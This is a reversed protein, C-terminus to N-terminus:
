DLYIGSGIIVRRGELVSEMVFVAKREIRNTVPNRIRLYLFGGDFDNILRRAADTMRYGDVDTMDSVDRGVLEPQGPNLTQVETEADLLFLYVPPAFWWPQTIFEDLAARGLRRLVHDACRVLLEVDHVTEVTEASVFEAGCDDDDQWVYVGAGVIARRGELNVEMVYSTKPEVQDSDPNRFKYYAWGSGWGKVIRQIDQLFYHGDPDVLNGELQGVHESRAGSALLELTELDSVNVYIAGSLWRPDTAFDALAAAGHLDIHHAACRVLHEVEQVTEVLAAQINDGACFSTMAATDMRQEAFVPLTLAALLVGITGRIGTSAIRMGCSYRKGPTSSLVIEGEGGQHQYGLLQPPIGIGLGPVYLGMIWVTGFLYAGIAVRRPPWTSFVVLALAIWGRGATM